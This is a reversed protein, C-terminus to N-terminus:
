KELMLNLMRETAQRVEQSEKLLTEYQSKTISSLGLQNLFEQIHFFFSDGLSDLRKFEDVKQMHIENNFETPNEDARVLQVAIINYFLEDHLVMNCRDKLESLVFGIKALGKGDKIGGELGKEAVELCKLYESKDVGKSLWTLYEQIKALRMIPVEVDKSFKYYGIGESDHFAFNLNEKTLKIANKKNLFKIFKKEFLSFILRLM